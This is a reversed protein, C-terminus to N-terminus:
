QMCILGWEAEPERPLSFPVIEPYGKQLSVAAAQWFVAHSGECTQGRPVRQSQKCGFYIDLRGEHSPAETRGM